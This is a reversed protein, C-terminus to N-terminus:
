FSWSLLDGEVVDLFAILGKVGLNLFHMRGVKRFLFTYVLYHSNTNCDGKM